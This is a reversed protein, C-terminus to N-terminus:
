DNIANLLLQEIDKTKDSYIERIIVQTAPKMSNVKTIAVELRLAQEKGKQALEDIAKNQAELKLKFESLNLELKAITIEKDAITTNLNKIDHRLSLVYVALIVIVLVWWYKKLVNFVILGISVPEM